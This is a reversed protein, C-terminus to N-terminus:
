GALLRLSAALRSRTETPEIIEDVFGARAAAEASQHEAFYRRALAARHSEPDTARAIERRNVISVVQQASMIGIHAHPWAFVLDAGLDRANMTIYAGGFAQRLIVTLRPVSAAAFARLLDAGHRIIGHLEQARGPLFGPTDVLVILPLGFADCNRVFSAGKQAAELDIVGGKFHPQNAILGIPRGEIRAFATVISRAWRPSIELLKGGDVVASAVTRVDYALRTERPVAGAPDRGSPPRTPASPPSESSNQPLYSLLERALAAAEAEDDALLQCVGNRAHIAAGGLEGAGITEGLAARVVSPGTLFMNAARTMVVFDTLAPAYAGGGASTGTVISIQPVCGSLAVIQTFVRAYGSLAATAEQMRAGASEIMGIVPVRARDALSLVRVITEADAEGLSGGAFRSDQVYCLVPRGAITATAALIGDGLHSEADTARPRVASRIVDISGRDCLQEIRERPSSRREISHLDAPAAGGLSDLQGVM